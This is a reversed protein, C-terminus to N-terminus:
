DMGVGVINSRAQACANSCLHGIGLVCTDRSVNPYDRLDNPANSRPNPASPIFLAWLQLLQTGIGTGAPLM